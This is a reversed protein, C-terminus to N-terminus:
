QGVRAKIDATVQQVRNRGSNKVAYLAADAWKVLTDLDPGDSPFEAVGISM